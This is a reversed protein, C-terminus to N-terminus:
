KLDKGFTQWDAGLKGLTGRYEVNGALNHKEMPDKEVNWRVGVSTM